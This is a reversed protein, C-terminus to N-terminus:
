RWWELTGIYVGCTTARPETNRGRSAHFGRRTQSCTFLCFWIQSFSGLVHRSEWQRKRERARRLPLLTGRVVHRGNLLSHAACGTSQALGMALMLAYYAAVHHINLFYLLSYTCALLGSAASGLTLYIRLDM